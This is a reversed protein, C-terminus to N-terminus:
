IVTQLKSRVYLMPPDKKDSPFFKLGPEPQLIERSAGCDISTISTPHGARYSNDGNVSVAETLSLM